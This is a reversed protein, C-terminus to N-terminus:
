RAIITQWTPWPQRSYMGPLLCSSLPSVPLVVSTLMTVDAVLAAAPLGGIAATPGAKVLSVGARFESLDKSGNEDVFVTNTDGILDIVRGIDPEPVRTNRRTAQPSSSGTQM